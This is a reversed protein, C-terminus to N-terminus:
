LRKRLDLYYKCCGEYTKEEREQSKYAEVIEEHSPFQIPQQRIYREKEEPTAHGTVFNLPIWKSKGNHPFKVQFVEAKRSHEKIIMGVKATPSKVAGNIKPDKVKEHAMVVDGVVYSAGM